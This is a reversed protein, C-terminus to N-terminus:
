LRRTIARELSEIERAWTPNATRYAETYEYCNWVMSTSMGGMFSGVNSMTWDLLHNLEYGRVKQAHATARNRSVHGSRIEAVAVNYFGECYQAVVLGSLPGKQRGRPMPLWYGPRPDPRVNGPRNALGHRRLARLVRMRPLKLEEAIQATTKGLVVHEQRCWEHDDLLGHPEDTRRLEHALVWQSVAAQSCNLLQAVETQTMGEDLRAKLWARDHLEPIARAM